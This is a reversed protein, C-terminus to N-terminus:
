AIRAPRSLTSRTDLDFLPYKEPAVHSMGCDLFYLRADDHAGHRYTVRDGEVSLSRLM